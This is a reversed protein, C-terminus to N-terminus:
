KLGVSTTQTVERRKAFEKLCLTEKFTPIKNAFPHAANIAEEVSAREAESAKNWLPFWQDRFSKEKRQNEEHTKGIEKCRALDEADRLKKQRTTELYKAVEEAYKSVAAFTKADPWERRLKDVVHPLLANAEEEGYQGIFARAHEQDKNSPLTKGGNWLEHFKSALMWEPPHINRHESYEITTEIEPPLVKTEQHTMASGRHIKLLWDGDNTSWDVKRILRHLILSEFALKFQEQAQSQYALCRVPLFPALTKYKVTYVDQKAYFARLLYEYMRSAIGSKGDLTKWLGYNLPAAYRERLNSLFWESVWLRNGESIQGDSIRNRHYEVKDYLSLGVDETCIPREEGRSYIANNSRIIVGMTADIAAKIQQETRGSPEVGLRRCFDRWGWSVPNQFGNESLLSLVALHVSRSLPGPYPTATNRSTRMHFRYVAGTKKDRDEGSASFGDLTKLGMTHLAFFPLRLLNTEASVFRNMVEHTKEQNKEATKVETSIM